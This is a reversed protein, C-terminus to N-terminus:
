FMLLKLATHIILLAVDARFSVGKEAGANRFSLACINCSGSLFVLWTFRGCLGASFPLYGSSPYIMNEYCCNFIKFHGDTQCKSLNYILGTKLYKWQLVLM